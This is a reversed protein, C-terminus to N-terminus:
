VFSHFPSCARFAFVQFTVHTGYYQLSSLSVLAEPYRHLRITLPTVLIYPLGTILFEFYTRFRDFLQMQFYWIVSLNPRLHDWSWGYTADLVQTYKHPGVLSFSLYQFSGTWVLFLGIMTLKSKASEGAWVCAPVLFVLSHPEIYSAMALFFASWSYSGTPRMAEYLGSLVFLGVLSQFCGYTGGALATIPSWFYVQAALLPLSSMEFQPRPQQQKSDSYGRELPFVADSSPRIKEDMERQLAEERDTQESPYFLVHRAIAELLVSIVFDVLLMALALWLEAVADDEELAKFKSILDLLV